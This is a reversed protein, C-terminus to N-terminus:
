WLADDFFQLIRQEYEDPVVAAYGGHGAGEIIWLVKPDCAADFMQQASGPALAGDEL